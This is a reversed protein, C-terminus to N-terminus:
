SSLSIYILWFELSITDSNLTPYCHICVKIRNVLTDLGGANCFASFSAAFGYVISDLLGVSKTVNQAFFFLHQVHSAQSWFACLKELSNLVAFLVKL